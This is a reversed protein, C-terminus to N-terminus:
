VFVTTVVSQSVLQTSLQSPLTYHLAMCQIIM